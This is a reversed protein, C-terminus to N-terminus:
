LALAARVSPPWDGIDLGHHKFVALALREMGFGVCATQAPEGSALEIGWLSAFHDQHYNFSMCATPEDVSEIPVLLEFKLGLERQSSAMVRGGRGFFPDNAVDVEHPLGLERAFDRAKELWQERFAVVQDRTGVRVFERMRFMQM